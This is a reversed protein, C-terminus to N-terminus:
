CPFPRRDRHKMLAESTTPFAPFELDPRSERSAAANLAASVEEASYTKYALHSLPNLHHLCEALAAGDVGAKELFKVYFHRSGHITTGKTKTFELAPDGTERRLRGVAREWASRFATMTYPDGIRGHTPGDAHGTSVLLYPHDPLGLSRRIRMVPARVHVIYSQIAAAMAEPLGPVPLWYVVAGDGDAKVGKWGSASRGKLGDTRPALGYREALHTRRSVRARGDPAVESESPHFLFLVAAGDVVQFDGVWCHLPESGRVGGFFLIMALLRATADERDGRTRFGRDILPIVYRSPFPFRKEGKSSGRGQADRVSRATVKKYPSLFDLLSIRRVVQAVYLFDLAGSADSPLELSAAKALTDGYGETDLWRALDRLAQLRKEAEDLGVPLWHLGTADELGEPGFRVTGKIMARVFDRVIKRHLGRQPNSPAEQAYHDRRQIVFDLFSGFARYRYLLWTRSLGPHAIAYDLLGMVPRPAVEPSTNLYLVPLEPRDAGAVKQWVVFSHMGRPIRQTVSLSPLLETM